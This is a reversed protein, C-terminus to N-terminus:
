APRDGLPLLTWGFLVSLIGFATGARQVLGFGGSDADLVEAALMAVVALTGAAILLGGLQRKTLTFDNDLWRWM